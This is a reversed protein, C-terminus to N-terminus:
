TNVQQKHKLCNKELQKLGYCNKATSDEVVRLRPFIEDIDKETNMLRTNVLEIAHRKENTIMKEMDIKYSAVRDEINKIINKNNLLMAGVTAGCSILVIFTNLDVNMEQEM